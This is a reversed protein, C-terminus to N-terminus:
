CVLPIGPIPGYAHMKSRQDATSRLELPMARTLPIARLYHQEDGPPEVHVSVATPSMASNKECRDSGDDRQRHCGRRLRAAGAEKESLGHHGEAYPGSVRTGLGAALDEVEGALHEGEARAVKADDAHPASKATRTVSRRSM